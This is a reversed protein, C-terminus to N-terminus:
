DTSRHVTLQPFPITWGKDNSVAVCAQQLLRQLKYFDSAVQSKFSAFVLFDLSSTNAECLEVLLSQLNKKYGADNLATTVRQELAKPIETLSIDQLSYDFGFTVSVGFTKDRSLNILNISYFDSTNYTMTMGGRISIEVLDPTQHKIQGLMGDPLIVFDGKNSPFWLNNKVPRSVLTGVTELPLRMVGELAPNRLVSHLNLSMVQWPLGNYVVREDERVSGLNLLLRAERVYRPLFHRFSLVAGFLLLLALALLLLDERVYLVCLVVVMIVITTLLYFSYELLRFWTKNRRLEKTTFRTTYIWWLAKMFCWAMVAALAAIIVTLGRGLLFVRTAPWIGEVFSQQDATLRELQSQSVLLEQELQEQEDQWKVVLEAIRDAAPKDLGEAPIAQLEELAQVAVALGTQSTFIADRLEALQRPRKTLSKLSEILPDLIQVLDQRWDTEPDESQTLLSTDTSGLAVLEFTTRLRAIDGQTDALTAREKLMETEPVGSLAQRLTDRQIIKKEMLRSLEDLRTAQLTVTEASEPQNQSQDQAMVVSVPTAVIFLLVLWCFQLSSFSPVIIRNIAKM